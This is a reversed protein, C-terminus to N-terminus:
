QFAFEFFCCCCATLGTCQGSMRVDHQSKTDKSSPDHDPKFVESIVDELTVMGVTEYYPDNPGESNVRQVMAM